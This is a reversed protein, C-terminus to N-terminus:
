LLEEIVSKFWLWFCLNSFGHKLKLLM